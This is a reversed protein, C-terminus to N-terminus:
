EEIIVEEGFERNIEEIYKRQKEESWNKDYIKKIEIWNFAWKTEKRMLQLKLYEQVLKYNPKKEKKEIYESRIKYYEEETKWNLSKIIEDYKWNKEKEELKDKLKKENYVGFYIQMLLNFEQRSYVQYRDAEDIKEIWPIIQNYQYKSYSVLIIDKYHDYAIQFDWMDQCWFWNILLFWRKWNTEREIKKVEKRKEINDFDKLDFLMWLNDDETYNLVEYFGYIKALEKEIPDQLNFILMPHNKDKKVNYIVWTQYLFYWTYWFRLIYKDSMINWYMWKLDM